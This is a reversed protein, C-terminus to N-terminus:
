AAKRGALDARRRAVWVAVDELSLATSIPGEPQTESSLWCPRCLTRSVHDGPRKECVICLGSYGGNIALWVVASAADESLRPM